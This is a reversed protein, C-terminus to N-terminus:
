QSVVNGRFDVAVKVSKSDKMASGRWVGEGDKALSSVSTITTLSLPALASPPGCPDTFSFRNKLLTGSVSSAFKFAM